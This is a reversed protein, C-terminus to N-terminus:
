ADEVFKIGVHGDEEDEAVEVPNHWGLFNELKVIGVLARLVETLDVLGVVFVPSLVQEVLAHHPKGAGFALVDLSQHLGAFMEVSILLGVLGFTQASVPSTLLSTFILM